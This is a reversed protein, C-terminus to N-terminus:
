YGKAQNIVNIKCKNKKKETYKPKILVLDPSSNKNEDKHISNNNLTSISNTNIVNASTM